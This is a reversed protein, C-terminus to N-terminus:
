PLKVAVTLVFVMLSCFWVGDWFSLWGEDKIFRRGVEMSIGWMAGAYIVMFLIKLFRMLCVILDREIDMM